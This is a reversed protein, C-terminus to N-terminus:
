GGPPPPHTVAAVLGALILGVDALYLRASHVEVAPGVLRLFQWAEANTCCGYVPRDPLGARANFAQAGVMQAICQGVGTEVDHRKAEVLTLLPAQLIALPNDPALIFDCEGTLGRAPDVDLRQGSLVTVRGGVLDRVAVLIPAVVFESRSKESVWALGRTKGLLESLWGPAAVPALGPFLDASRVSVGLKPGVNEPTFETYAM